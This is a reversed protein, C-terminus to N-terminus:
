IEPLLWPLPSDKGGQTDVPLERRALRTVYLLRGICGVIILFMVAGIWLIHRGILNIAFVGLILMAAFQLGTFLKLRTVRNM